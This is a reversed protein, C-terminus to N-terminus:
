PRHAFVLAVVLAPLNTKRSARVPAGVARQELLEQPVWMSRRGL